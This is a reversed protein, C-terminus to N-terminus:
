YFLYNSDNKHSCRLKHSMDLIYNEASHCFILETIFFSMKEEVSRVCSGSLRPASSKGFHLKVGFQM